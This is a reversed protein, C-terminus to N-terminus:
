VLSLSGTVTERTIRRVCSFAGDAVAFARDNCSFGADSIASAADVLGAAASGCSIGRIVCCCGSAIVAIEDGFCSFGAAFWSCDKALAAIEQHAAAKPPAHAPARQLPCLFLRM